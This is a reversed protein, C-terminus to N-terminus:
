CQSFVDLYKQAVTKLRFQNLHCDMEDQDVHRPENVHSVIADAFLRANGTEVLTGFRGMKLVEEPGSPCATSIVPLGSVMAEVLVNGFGEWDSTLIFLDYSGLVTDLDSSFGRFKVLDLIKKYRAYEILEELLPGKGYIDLYYDEKQERNLIDIVDLMMPYNKQETLRGVAVLRIQNNVIKANKTPVVAANDDIVPNYICTLRGPDVKYYNSFSDMASESVVITRSSFACAYRHLFSVAKKRLTWQINSDRVKLDNHITCVRTGNFRSLCSAIWADINSVDTFSLIIDYDNVKLINKLQFIRSLFDNRSPHFVNVLPCLWYGDDSSRAFVSVDHGKLAFSNALNVAVKEAGGGGLTSCVLMIKM